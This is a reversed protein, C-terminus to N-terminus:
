SNLIRVHGTVLGPSAPDGRFLPTGLNVKQQNESVKTTQKVTTIPRTQVIYVSGGQIAWEIDQPFFYHKELKKGLEALKIIQDDSIKQKNKSFLSVNVEKNSTGVKKLMKHQTAIEKLLIKGSLKSVEYHDPKEKGQVIMEGLGFIAEITIKSKDNTVPDITFMVGSKDSEVMKQVPVAIGIRFHDFKNEHRYFIAREEFLSAWCEKIKIILNSEGKVNLYTEQQGAFSANPLDEATASSRVAVLPDTLKGDLKKYASYIELILEQSMDGALIENKILDSVQKLSHQNGTNLTNLLHKIKLELNNQKLFQFYAGSTVIFGNPVPFRAKTMEGLNAGKGGVLNVDGKDVEDFWVVNKPM